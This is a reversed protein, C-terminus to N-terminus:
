SDILRSMLEIYESGVLINPNATKLINILSNQNEQSLSKGFKILEGKITGFYVKKGVTYILCINDISFIANDDNYVAREDYKFPLDNFDATLANNYYLEFNEPTKLSIVTKRITSVRNSIIIYAIAFGLTLLLFAPMGAIATFVGLFITIITMTGLIKKITCLNPNLEETFKKAMKSTIKTETNIINEFPKLIDTSQLSTVNKSSSNSKALKKQNINSNTSQKDVNSKVNNTIEEKVLESENEVFWASADFNNKM